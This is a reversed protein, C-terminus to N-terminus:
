TANSQLKSQLESIFQSPGNKFKRGWRNEYWGSYLMYVIDKARTMGVYFVRRAEALAEASTAAYGPLRGQELGPMIVVQYELGKSSHLTTVAVTDPRGGCRAFDDVTFGALAKGSECSQRITSWDSFDDPYTACGSLCNELDLCANISEFWELLNTDRGALGTLIEFFDKRRKLDSSDIAIGAEKQRETWSDLLDELAPADETDPYSSCWKAIDELWRTFPTRPYRLDREGAYSIGADTLAKSLVLADWKDVYLIAIQGNDVGKKNLDPVIQTAILHAQQTLGEPCELFILDGTADERASKYNRPEEPALAVQSGNIIRQACRYNMELEVRRVSADSALERLYKPDAGAFGYISQDPDGVAFVEIATERMLLRVILHLPYGLDQYEDVVLFPFRAEIASRVFNQRRILDLAVLVMDDFDLLGRLHLLEEYTEILGRMQPDDNWQRSDRLPHTRRYRDFLTEWDDINGGLKLKTIAQQLTDRKQRPSAVTLAQSLNDIFLHGFPAVVCSLCFSHVTGVFLRKDARFGLQALRKRMERVTENNFTVCAVGRPGCARQSLLRAVKAVLVRTKGSGPGALVACRGDFEYAECQKLNFQAVWADLPSSYIFTV